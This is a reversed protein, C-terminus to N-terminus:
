TARRMKVWDPQFGLREYLAQARSNEVYVHLTLEPHGDGRTRDVCAEVLASAVGRGEATSSVALTELHSHTESELPDSFALVHALGWVESTDSEAVIVYQGPMPTDFYEDIWVLWDEVNGRDSAWEPAATYYARTALTKLAPADDLKAERIQFIPSTTMLHHESHSPSTVAGINNGMIGEIALRTKAIVRHRRKRDLGIESIPTIQCQSVAAIVMRGSTISRIM